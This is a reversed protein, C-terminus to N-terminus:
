PLSTIHNPSSFYHSKVKENPKIELNFNVLVKSEERSPYHFCVNKFNVEGNLSSLVLGSNLDMKAKRDILQFVRESAGIANSIQSQVESLAALGGALYITYLLFSTLTGSSIEGDLVQLGGYWLVILIGAYSFGGIGGAFLGYAFAKSRGLIYSDYVKANYREREKQEQAFSRVTRFASLTEQAVDSASPLTRYRIPM